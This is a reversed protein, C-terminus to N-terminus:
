PFPINVALTSSFAGFSPFVAIGAAWHAAAAVSASTLTVGFAPFPGVLRPMISLGPPFCRPPIFTPRRVRPGLTGVASAGVGVAGVVGAVVGAVAAAGLPLTLTSTVVVIVVAIVVGIVVIVIVVISVVAAARFLVVAGGDILISAVRGGGCGRLLAARHLSGESAESPTGVSTLFIEEWLFNESFHLMLPNDPLLTPDTREQDAKRLPFDVWKEM